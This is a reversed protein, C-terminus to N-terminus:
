PPSLRRLWEEYRNLLTAMWKRVVADSVMANDREFRAIDETVTAKTSRMALKAADLQDPEADHLSSIRSKASALLGAGATQEALVARVADVIRRLQHRRGSYPTPLYSSITRTANVQLGHPCNPRSWGRKGVRHSRWQPLVDVVLGRFDVFFCSSFTNLDETCM